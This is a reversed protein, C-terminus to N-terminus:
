LFKQQRWNIFNRITRYGWLSRAIIQILKAVFLHYHLAHVLPARPIGFNEEFNKFDSFCCQRLMIYPVYSGIITGCSVRVFGVFKSHVM